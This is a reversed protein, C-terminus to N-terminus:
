LSPRAGSADAYNPSRTLYILVVIAVLVALGLVVILLGEHSGGAQKKGPM